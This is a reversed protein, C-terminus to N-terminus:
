ERPIGNEEWEVIFNAGELGLNSAVAMGLSPRQASGTLWHLHVAQWAALTESCRSPSRAKWM